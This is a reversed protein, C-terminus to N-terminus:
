KSWEREAFGRIQRDLGRRIQKASVRKAKPNIKFKLNGQLVPKRIGGIKGGWDGKGFLHNRKDSRPLYKLKKLDDFGAALIGFMAAFIGLKRDTM